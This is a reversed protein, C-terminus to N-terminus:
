DLNYEKELHSILATLTKSDTSPLGTDTTNLVPLELHEYLLGRLQKNSSPNFYIDKFDEPSKRLKKLKKNASVVHWMRLTKEFEHVIPSQNINIKYTDELLKLEAAVDRVISQNIPMGCLEMQTIVKLSPKFITQYVEEQEQRVVPRYKDYVYWTALADTLDYKLIDEISYKTIDSMDELAYQGAYAFALEKLSLSNGGASNTSLYALIQTDEINRYLTDLGALMSKYDKDYLQYILRGIDFTANHFILKGQYSTLFEKLVHDCYHNELSFAVGDHQNKGFAISILGSEKLHLGRTEIDCTLAECDLLNDLEGEIEELTTPFRTDGFIDQNFLPDKGNIKRSIAELGMVLKDKLSPVFFLQRYDICVAGSIHPYVPSELVYGIHGESKRLKFITKFYSSDCVLINTIKLTDLIKIVQEMHEKILSVPTKGQENEELNIAVIETEDFGRKILPKVYHQYLLEKKLAKRKILIALKYEINNSGFKILEIPM